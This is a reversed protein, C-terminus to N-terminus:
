KIRKVIECRSVLSKLSEELSAIDGLALEKM